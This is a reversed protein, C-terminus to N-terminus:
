DVKFFFFFGSSKKISKVIVNERKLDIIEFTPTRIIKCLDTLIVKPFLFLTMNEFTM